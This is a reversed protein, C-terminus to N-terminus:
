RETKRLEERERRARGPEEIILVDKFPQLMVEGNVNIRECWRRAMWAVVCVPFLRVFGRFM